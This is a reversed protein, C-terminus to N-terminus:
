QATAFAYANQFLRFWPAKGDWEKGEEVPFWSMSERAVVREPHPMIALVRGNPTTIATIGEPSGNPNAPYRTTPQGRSDVYQGVVLGSSTFDSAAKTAPFSVRGEGHAVAVPLISGGMGKLFVCREAAEDPLKVSSVRGEFRGSKNQKFAPWGEAGPIIDKLQSLFQCGNCVGLVFTDERKFFTEFESRATANLLVSQAWGNGAGLVDGYSFGGCAALGKFSALSIKGSIIDSMHVDVSEFGAQTFAWAMEIQGNVGQERLICVRPRSPTTAAPGAAPVDPLFGATYSLALGADEDDLIADFEQKAGIPDDRIAQMRYSTEAWLQQLQGRTSSYVAESAQVLRVSQDGRGLVKGVVHLHRTPFGSKVFADTLALMDGSRVQMVAGLEENFL